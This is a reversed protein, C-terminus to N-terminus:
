IPRGKSSSVSPIQHMRGEDKGSSKVKLYAYRKGTEPFSSPPSSSWWSFSMPPSAAQTIGYAMAVTRMEHQSTAWTKFTARYSQKDTNVKFAMKEYM